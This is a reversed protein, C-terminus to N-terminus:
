VFLLPMMCLFEIQRKGASVSRTLPWLAAGAVVAQRRTRFSMFWTLTPRRQSACPHGQRFTLFKL